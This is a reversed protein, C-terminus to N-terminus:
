RCNCMLRINNKYFKSRIGDISKTFEKTKINGDKNDFIKNVLDIIFPMIISTVAIAPLYYLNKNILISAVAFLIILAM